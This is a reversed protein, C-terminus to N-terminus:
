HRRMLKGLALRVLRDRRSSPPALWLRIARLRMGLSWIAGSKVESLQKNLNTINELSFVDHMATLAIFDKHTFGYLQSIKRARDPDNIAKFLLELGFLHLWPHNVPAEVAVMGLVYGTDCGDPRYYKQASPFIKVLDEYTPITLYHDLVQLFEFGGRIRTEPRNGSSYMEDHLVRFRVLKEPLVHIEYKMCLRVWMDFDPIQAFGRRYFGCEEYCKKRILVSPHCLANGKYFFYNLWEYRSRNPQDFIKYYSHTKDQLPEGDEDIIQANTFVAGVDPHAELFAVQRQLKEPEWLNDSHHVAIYEGTAMQFVIERMREKDNSNTANRFSHIRPDTFSQIVTWSEDTSADDVIFLEFDTFTQNLVSTIAAGVYKAYNYSSM